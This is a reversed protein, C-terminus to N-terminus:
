RGGGGGSSDARRQEAKSGFEPTTMYARFVHSRVCWLCPRLGVGAGPVDSRAISSASCPIAAAQFRGARARCWWWRLLLSLCSCASGRSGGGGRERGEGSADREALEDMLGLDLPMCNLSLDCRMTM